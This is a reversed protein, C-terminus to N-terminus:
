IDDYIELIDKQIENVNNKEPAMEEFEHKYQMLKEQQEKTFGGQEQSVKKLQKLIKTIKDMDFCYSDLERDAYVTTVVGFEGYMFEEIEIVINRWKEEM